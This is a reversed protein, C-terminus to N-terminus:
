DRSHELRANPAYKKKPSRVRLSGGGTRRQMDPCVGADNILIRQKSVVITPSLRVVSNLLGSSVRALSNSLISNELESSVREVNEDEKTRTKSVEILTDESEHARHGYETNFQVASIQLESSHQNHNITNRM